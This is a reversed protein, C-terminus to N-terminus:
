RRGGFHGGGGGGGSRSAGGGGGSFSSGGGSSFGSNRQTGIFNSNNRTNNSNYNRSDNNRGTANGFSRHQNSGGREGVRSNGIPRTGSGYRHTPHHNTGGHIVIPGGWHYDWYPNFYNWSYHWSPYGYYWPDGWSSFWWPGDFWPDYFGYYGHWAYFPHYWNRYWPDEINYVNITVPREDLGRMRRALRLDEDFMDYLAISDNAGYITDGVLSDGSIRQYESRLSGPGIIRNYEEPTRTSTAPYYDEITHVVKKLEKKSFYMDDQAFVTTMPMIFMLGQLILKKM